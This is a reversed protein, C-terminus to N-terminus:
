EFPERQDVIEKKLDKYKSLNYIIIPNNLIMCM